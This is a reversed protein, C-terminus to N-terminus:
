FKNLLRKVALLVEDVSILGMCAYRDTKRLCDPMYGEDNKICPSCELSKYLAANNKGYPGWLKPTNPGFLGVTKVGQAAAIHMPGTDISIFLGCKSILCVASKLNLVGASSISKNKMSSQIVDIAKKEKDTGFFIIQAGYNKILLDCISVWKSDDWIRTKSASEATGVCVGVVLKKLDVNNSLMFQKVVEEEVGSYKLKVLNYDQVSLRCGIVKCFDLYNGVMHQNKNFVVSENYLRSRFQGAFGVSYRGFLFSLVSSLNLYPELDFVVDYKWFLSFLKMINRPEFLILEDIFDVMEFIQRNRNRALVDIKANPFNKRLSNILPLAVVSDGLAWLKIVLVSDINTRTKKFKFLSLFLIFVIGVYKDVFKYFDIKM